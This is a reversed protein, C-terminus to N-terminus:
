IVYHDQMISEVPEDKIKKDELRKIAMRLHAACCTNNICQFQEKVIAIAKDIALNWDHDGRTNDM